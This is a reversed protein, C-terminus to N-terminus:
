KAGGRGKVPKSSKAAHSEVPTTKAPPNAPDRPTPSPKKKEKEREAKEKERAAVRAQAAAQKAATAAEERRAIGTPCLKRLECRPCDPEGEVCTDHALEEVLDLFEAARNKPVSRELLSRLA